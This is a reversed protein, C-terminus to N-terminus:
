VACGFKAAAARVDAALHPAADVVDSAKMFVLKAGGELNLVKVPKGCTMMVMPPLTEVPLYLVGEKIWIYHGAVHLLWVGGRGFSSCEVGDCMEQEM